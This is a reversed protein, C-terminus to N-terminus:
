FLKDTQVEEDEIRFAIAAKQLINLWIPEDAIGLNLCIHTTQLFDDIEYIKVSKLVEM